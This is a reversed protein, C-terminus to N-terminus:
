RLFPETPMQFLRFRGSIAVRGSNNLLSNLNTVRLLLLLCWVPLSRGQPLSPGVVVEIAEDWLPRNFGPRACGKRLRAGTGEYLRNRMKLTHRTQRVDLTAACAADNVSAQFGLESGSM